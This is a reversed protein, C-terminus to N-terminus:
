TCLNSYIQKRPEFNGMKEPGWFAGRGRRAKIIRKSARERDGDGRGDGPERRGACDAGQVPHLVKLQTHRGMLFGWSGLIVYSEHGEPRRREGGRSM